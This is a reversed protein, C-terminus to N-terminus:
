GLCSGNWSWGTRSLAKFKMFYNELGVKLVTGGRGGTVQPSPILLRYIFV